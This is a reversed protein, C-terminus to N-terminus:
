TIATPQILWALYRYLAPDAVPFNQFVWSGGASRFLRIKQYSLLSDKYWRSICTRGAPWAPYGVESTAENSVTGTFHQTGRSHTIAELGNQSDSKPVSSSVCVQGKHSDCQIPLSYTASPLITICLNIFILPNDSFDLTYYHISFFLQENPM